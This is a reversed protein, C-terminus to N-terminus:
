NSNVRLTFIVVGSELGVATITYGVPISNLIKISYGITGTTAASSQCYSPEARFMNFRNKMFQGDPLYDVITNGIDNVDICDYPYTGESHEDCWAEVARQLELCDEVVLVETEEINDYEAIISNTGYGKIFYVNLYYDYTYDERNVIRHDKYYSIEGSSSPMSDLPQDKLGTFPNLLREGGPLYDTLVKGTITTDSDANVPYVGYNDIAFLEVAELLTISNGKVIAELEEATPVQCEVLTDEECGILIFLTIAIITIITPKM